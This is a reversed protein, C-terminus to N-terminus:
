EAATFGNRLQDRECARRVWRRVTCSRGYGGAPERARARRMQAAKERRFWLYTIAAIGIGILGPAGDAVWFPLQMCAEEEPLDLVKLSTWTLSVTDVSWLLSSADFSGRDFLRVATAAVLGTGLNMPAGSVSEVRKNRRAAEITM